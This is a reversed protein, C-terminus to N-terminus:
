PCAIEICIGEPDLFSVAFYTESYEPYAKPSGGLTAICRPALFEDSFRIVEDYDAARFALHHLGTGHREFSTGRHAEETQILWLTVTGDSIGLHHESEDVVEHGLYAFLDRYFPFSGAADSVNIQVHYLPAKMSPTASAPPNSGGIGNGTYRM